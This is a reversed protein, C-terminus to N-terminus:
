IHVTTALLIHARPQIMSVYHFNHQLICVTCHTCDVYLMCTCMSHICLKHYFDSLYKMFVCMKLAHVFGVCICACDISMIFPKGSCPLRYHTCHNKTEIHAHKCHDHTCMQSRLFWKDSHIRKGSSIVLTTWLCVCKWTCIRCMCVDINVVSRCHTCTNNAHMTFQM